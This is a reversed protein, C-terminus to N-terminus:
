DRGVEEPVYTENEHSPNKHEHLPHDFPIGNSNTNLTDDACLRIM